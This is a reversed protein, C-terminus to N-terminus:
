SMSSHYAADSRDASCSRLSGAAIARMAALVASNLARRLAQAEGFRVRRSPKARLTVSERCVQGKISFKPATLSHASRVWGASATYRVTTSHIM